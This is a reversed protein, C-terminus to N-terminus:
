DSESSMARPNLSRDVLWDLMVAYVEEQADYAFLVDLHGYNELVHISVDRGGLNAASYIGNLLADPGMNGSGFYLVPLDTEGFHDDLYTGPDDAVSVLARRNLEQITPFFWDYGRMEAALVNLPSVADRTNALVGPGWARQLVDAFQEAASGFRPDPAPADPTDQARRMLEDRREFGRRSLVLSYNGDADFQQLASALDFPRPRVHKFSGDLAILGAVELQGTLAYAYGAGRSFGAVFMPLAPRIEQVLKGARAADEVFVEMSWDQMFSLDGSFDHAIFRTRYDLTFVEIGRAALYLWLNHFEDRTKLVGNMNTGPLYLLRAVPEVEPVRYRHLGIRQQEGLLLQWETELLTGSSLATVPQEASVAEFASLPKEPAQAQAQVPGVTEGDTALVPEAILFLALLMLILNM